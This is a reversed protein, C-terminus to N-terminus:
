IRENFIDFRDSMRLCERFCVAGKGKGDGRPRELLLLHSAFVRTNKPDSIKVFFKAALDGWLSFYFILNAPEIKFEFFCYSM